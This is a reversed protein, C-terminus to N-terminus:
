AVREIQGFVGEMIDSADQLLHLPKDQRSCVLEQDWKDDLNLACKGKPNAVFTM